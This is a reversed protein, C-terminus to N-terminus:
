KNNISVQDQSEKKSFKAQFNELLRLMQEADHRSKLNEIHGTLSARQKKLIKRKSGYNPIHERGSMLELEMLDKQVQYYIEVAKDYSLSVFNVHSQKNKSM